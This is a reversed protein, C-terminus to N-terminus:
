VSKNKSVSTKDAMDELAAIAAAEPESMFELTPEGAARRSMIGAKEIAEKMRAQAYAPWIAPITVVIKFSLLDVQLASEARKITIISFKWLERLYDRIADM